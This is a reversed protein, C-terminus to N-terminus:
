ANQFGEFVRRADVEKEFCLQTTSGEAGARQVQFVPSIAPLDNDRDHRSRVM